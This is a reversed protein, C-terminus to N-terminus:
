VQAGKAKLKKCHIYWHLIKGVAIQYEKESLVLKLAQRWFIARDIYEGNEPSFCLSKRTDHPLTEFFDSVKDFMEKGCNFLVCGEVTNLFTYGMVMCPYVGIDDDPKHRRLDKFFASAAKIDNLLKKM